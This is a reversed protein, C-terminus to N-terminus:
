SNCDDRLSQANIERILLDVNVIFKRGSYFGPCKKQAVLQRLFTESIGTMRVTERISRLTPMNTNIITENM